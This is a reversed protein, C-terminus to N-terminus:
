RGRGGNLKEAFDEVAISAIIVAVLGDIALWIEQPFNPILYFVISQVLAFIALWFKASHWLRKLGKPM